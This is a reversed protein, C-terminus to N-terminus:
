WTGIHKGGDFNSHSSLQMAWDSYQQNVKLLKRRAENQAKQQSAVDSGVIDKFEFRQLQTLDLRALPHRYTSGPKKDGFLLCRLSRVCEVAPARQVKNAVLADSSPSDPCHRNEGLNYNVISKELHHHYHRYCHLLFFGGEDLHCQYLAKGAGLQERFIECLMSRSSAKNSRPHILLAKPSRGGGIKTGQGIPAELDLMLRFSVHLLSWGGVGGPSGPLLACLAPRHAAPYTKATQGHTNEKAKRAQTIYIVTRGQWIVVPGSLPHRHKYREGNKKQSGRPRQTATRSVLAIGVKQLVYLQQKLSSFFWSGSCMEGFAM